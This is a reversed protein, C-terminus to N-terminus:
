HRSALNAEQPAPLPPLSADPELNDTAEPLAVTAAQPAPSPTVSTECHVRKATPEEATEM